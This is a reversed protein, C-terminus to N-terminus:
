CLFSMVMGGPFSVYPVETISAVEVMKYAVELFETINSPGFSVVRLVM